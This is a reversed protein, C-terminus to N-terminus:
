NRSLLEISSHAKSSDVLLIFSIFLKTNTVVAVYRLFSLCYINSTFCGLTNLFNSSNFRYEVLQKEVTHPYM